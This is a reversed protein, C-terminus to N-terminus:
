PAPALRAARRQAAYEFAARRQQEAGHRAPEAAAGATQFPGEEDHEDRHNDGRRQCDRRPAGIRTVDGGGISRHPACTGSSSLPRRAGRDGAAGSSASKKDRGERRLRQPVIPLFERQESLRSNQVVLRKAGVGEVIGFGRCFGRKRLWISSCQIVPVTSPTSQAPSKNTM